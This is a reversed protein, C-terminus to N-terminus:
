PVSKDTLITHGLKFFHGFDEMKTATVEGQKELSEGVRVIHTVFSDMEVTQIGKLSLRAEAAWSLDGRTIDAVVSLTDKLEQDLVANAGTRIPADKLADVIDAVICYRGDAGLTQRLMASSRGAGAAPSEGGFAAREAEALKVAEEAIQKADIAQQLELRLIENKSALEANEVEVSQIHFDLNQIHAEAEDFQKEWEVRAGLSKELVEIMQDGYTAGKSEDFDDVDKLGLEIAREIFQTAAKALFERTADTLDAAEIGEASTAATGEGRQPSTFLNKGKKFLTSLLGKSEEDSKPAKDGSTEELDNKDPAGDGPGAGAEM